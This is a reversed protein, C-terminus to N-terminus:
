YVKFYYVGGGSTSDTVSPYLNLHQNTNKFNLTFSAKTCKDNKRFVNAANSFFLRYIGTQKPIVGLKFLYHSNRETFLYERLSEPDANNTETGDVLTFAFEQAAKEIFENANSLKQFAIVSGLNGGNSYDITRGTRIDTLTTPENIELWLTDGTNMVEKDPYAKIGFEFSFINEACGIRKNCSAWIGLYFIIFCCLLTKM